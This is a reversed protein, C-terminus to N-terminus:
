SINEDNFLFAITKQITPVAAILMILRDIGLAMGAADPMRHLCELFAEDIPFYKKSVRRMREAMINKRQLRPDNQETFGNALEVGGIYLEVREAVLPNGPKAKALPSMFTPYDMLFLPKPEKVLAPEIKEIMLKGFTDEWPDDEHISDCGAAKGARSFEEASWSFDIKVDAYRNMAEAISMRPWQGCLDIRRGHVILNDTGVVEGVTYRILNECDTMVDLYDHNVRYWELMTFEPNHFTTNEDSRFCRCIQYIRQLGEGLLRKMHPEPSTILYGIGPSNKESVEVQMPEIHCEPNPALVLAPTDVELFNNEAFFRRIAALTGARQHLSSVREVRRVESLDSQKNKDPENENTSL